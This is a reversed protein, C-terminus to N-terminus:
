ICLWRSIKVLNRSPWRMLLRFRASM